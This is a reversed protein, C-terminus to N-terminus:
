KHNKEKPILFDFMDVMDQGFYSVADAKHKSEGDYVNPKMYKRQTANLGDHPLKDKDTNHDPAPNRNEITSPPNKETPSNLRSERKKSKKRAYHLRHLDPLHTQIYRRITMEHCTLGVHQLVAHIFPISYGQSALSEIETHVALMQRAPQQGFSDFHLPVGRGDGLNFTREAVATAHQHNVLIGGLRTLLQGWKLM